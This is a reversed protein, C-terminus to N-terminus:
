RIQQGIVFHFATNGLPSRPRGGPAGSVEDFGYGWDVGLLGGFAPMFIRAGVGASRYLKLPNFSKTESWSNGAEAFGHVWITATPQTSIAYRLETVYKAFATGPVTQYEASENYTGVTNNVYGRLGIIDYGIIFNFGTIGDGGLRYREFPGLSANSSYKGLLGYHVRTNIVLNKLPMPIFWSADFLWKHYEVWKYRDADSAFNNTARLLSYPPTLSLSLSVNSGSKPYIPNDVSNRSLVTTWNLNYFNGSSFNLERSFAYNILSYRKFSVTNILSFYDDPSRLRKGLTAYVEFIRFSSNTPTLTFFNGSRFVQYNTGVTFSNPKKGGLWPETFSFSYTQFQTGNAQFRLSLRQGDGSPLPSWTKFKPIKRLSFNNFVVGATGVFGIWGGWGGSLEIQDSPKEVVTYNIDVTGDAPNPVPNIGIQQPDFYGMGALLQNTRILDSRSFKQGPLTRIERRVVHDSTRTNGSLNVKNITAQPGEYIRMELDISDGDISVEVPDIRFFLYGNDLYLSSIDIGRQNFNLKRDLLEKNYVDGSKINLIRALEEDTYIYNGEWKIDRFYYKRGEQLKITIGINKDDIKYLSDKLIEADRYGEKNYFAILKQKDAEYKGRQYKSAKFLRYWKKEKTDKMKRKLQADAYIDNGEFNIEKIKVKKGKDIVIKIIVGNSVATDDEQVIRVQVNYFGKEVFFKKVTNQTNKLLADTVVRGRILRIKERIDDAQGKKIGKFTFKTLRPREKLEFELFIYKGEIKSAYVKIDGLIGQQWLKQIANAIDEGPVEIEDGVKLGTISILTNPDLFQVGTVTIGGIEYRKPNKYDIENQTNNSGSLLGSRNLRIQAQLQYSCFIVAFLVIIFQRM